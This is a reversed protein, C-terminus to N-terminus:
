RYIVGNRHLYQLALVVEAAYFRFCHCFIMLTCYGFHLLFVEAFEFRVM